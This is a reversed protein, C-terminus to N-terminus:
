AEQEKGHTQSQQPPQKMPIYQIANIGQDAWGDMLHVALALPLALLRLTLAVAFLAVVAVAGWATYPRLRDILGKAAAASPSPGPIM